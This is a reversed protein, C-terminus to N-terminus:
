NRGETPTNALCHPGRCNVKEAGSGSCGLPSVLTRKLWVYSTGKLSFLSLWSINEKKKRQPSSCVFSRLSCVKCLEKSRKISNVVAPSNTPLILEFHPEDCTKSDCILSTITATHASIINKIYHWSTLKVKLGPTSQSAPCARVKLWKNSRGAWLGIGQSPPRIYRGRSCKGRLLTMEVGLICAKM